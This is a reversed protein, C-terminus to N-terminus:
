TLKWNERRKFMLLLVNANVLDGLACLLLGCFDAVRLSFVSHEMPEQLKRSISSFIPHLHIRFLAMRQLQAPNWVTHLSYQILKGPTLHSSDNIAERIFLDKFSLPGHRCSPPLMKTVLIVGLIIEQRGFLQWWRVEIELWFYMDNKCGRGEEEQIPVKNNFYSENKKWRVGKYREWKKQIGQGGTRPKVSDNSHVENNVKGMGKGRLTRGSINKQIQKWVKETDQQQRKELIRLSVDQIHLSCAKSQIDKSEIQNM